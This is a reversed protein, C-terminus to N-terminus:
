EVAQVVRFDAALRPHTIYAAPLWFHGPFDPDGWETGWSNRCLVDNHSNKGAGLVCHGGIPKGVPMPVMGTRAVVDSEFNQYVVFGFVFCNGQALCQELTYLDQHLYGADTARYRLAEAYVADSPRQTMLHNGDYPCDTEPPVGCTELVGIGDSVAAGSDSLVTNRSVRENYYLFSRSPMIFPLGERARAACWAAGDGHATCSGQRGQNWVSPLLRMHNIYRSVPVPSGLMFHTDDFRPLGRVWGYSRGLSSETM